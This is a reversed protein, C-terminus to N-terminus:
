KATNGEGLPHPGGSAKGTFDARLLVPQGAIVSVAAWRHRLRWDSHRTCVGVEGPGELGAFHALDRRSLIKRGCTDIVRPLRGTYLVRSVNQRM